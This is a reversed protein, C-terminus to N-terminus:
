RRPGHSALEDDAGTTDGLPAAHHLAPLACSRSPPPPWREHLDRYTPQSGSPLRWTATQLTSPPDTWPHAAYPALSRLAVRRVIAAASM